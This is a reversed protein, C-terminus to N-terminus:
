FLYSCDKTWYSSYTLPCYLICQTQTPSLISVKDPSHFSTIILFYKTNLPSRPSNTPNQATCILSILWGTVYPPFRLLDLTTLSYVVTHSSIVLLNSSIPHPLIVSTGSPRLSGHSKIPLSHHGNWSPFHILSSFCCPFCSCSCPLFLPPSPLSHATWFCSLLEFLLCHNWTDLAELLYLCRCLFIPDPALNWPTTHMASSFTSM